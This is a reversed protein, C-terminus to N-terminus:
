LDVSDLAQAPLSAENLVREKLQVALDELGVPAHDIFLLLIAAKVVQLCLATAQDGESSFPDVWGDVQM